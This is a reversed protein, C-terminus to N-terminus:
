KIINFSRLAALMDFGQTDCYQSQEKTDYSEIIGTARKFVQKVTNDNVSYVFGYDGAAKAAAEFTKHRKLTDPRKLKCSWFSATDDEVLHENQEREAVIGKIILEVVRRRGSWWDYFTRRSVQALNAVEKADLGCTKRCYESLEMMEIETM